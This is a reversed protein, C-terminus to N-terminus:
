GGDSRGDHEPKNRADVGEILRGRRWVHITPVPGVMVLFLQAM